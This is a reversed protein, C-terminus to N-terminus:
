NMILCRGQEDKIIRDQLYCKVAEALCNRELDRSMQILTAMSHRHDVRCSHQDIIPGSDLEDTVFHATAGIMKVGSEYAQKYPRAGKFSPLLGHHINIIDREYSHLFWPSLIQMYRALVLFDTDEVCSLIRREAEEKELPWARQGDRQGSSSPLLPVHVFDVGYSGLVAKLESGEKRDHNSIVRAVDVGQLEGAGWRQVLDIACHDQAGVMIAMRRNRDCSPVRITFHSANVRQSLSVFERELTERPWERENYRFCTRSYFNSAEGPNGDVHIDCSVVSGGRNSVLGAIAAVHGVGDPCRMLHVGDRFVAGAEGGKVAAASSSSSAAGGRARAWAGAAAAAGHARPVRRLM